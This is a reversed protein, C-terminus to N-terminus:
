EILSEPSIQPFKKLGQIATDSQALAPVHASTFSVSNADFIFVTNRFLLKRSWDGASPRATNLVDDRGPKVRNPTLVAKSTNIYLERLICACHPCYLWCPCYPWCLCRCCDVGLSSLSPSASNHSALLSSGSVIRRDPCNRERSNLLCFVIITFDCWDRVISQCSTM